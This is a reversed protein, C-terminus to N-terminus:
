GDEKKNAKLDENWDKCFPLIAKMNSYTKRCEEGARDNDVAMVCKSGYKEILREITRYNTVGGISVYLGNDSHQGRIVALSIADIASECIFVNEIETGIQFSWYSDIEKRGNGHFSAGFSFTGHVEYYNKEKNLFVCNKYKRKGFVVKTQYILKEKIFKEVVEKPIGRTKVLYAITEKNSDDATPICFDSIHKIESKKYESTMDGLNNKMVSLFTEGYYTTLLDILNGSGAKGQKSFDMYRSSGRRFCVSKNSKLRAWNGEKKVDLNNLAYEYLDINVVEDIQEKTYM